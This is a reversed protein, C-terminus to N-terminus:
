RLKQFSVAHRLTDIDLCDQKKGQCLKQALILQGAPDKVTASIGGGAIMQMSAHGSADKRTCLNVSRFRGTCEQLFELCGPLVRDIIVHNGYLLKGSSIRLGIGTDAQIVSPVHFLAKM